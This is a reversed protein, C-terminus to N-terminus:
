KAKVREDLVITIHSTRKSIRDARGRARPRVRRMTPGQDAFVEKVVLDAAERGQNNEANAIASKLVKLILDSAFRPSYMLISLASGVDKGKIQELVIRAKTDSVRAFKHIAHPRMERNNENREKKIQSRHGSAM